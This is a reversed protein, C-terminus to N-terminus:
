IEQLGSAALSNYLAAFSRVARPHATRNTSQDRRDRILFRM